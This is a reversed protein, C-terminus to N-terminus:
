LSCRALPRARKKARNVWRRLLREGFNTQASNLLDRVNMATGKTASPWRAGTRWYFRWRDLRVCRRRCCTDGLAGWVEGLGLATAAVNLAMARDLPRQATWMEEGLMARTAWAGDNKPEPFVLPNIMLWVGLIAGQRRSRNWVPVFVLPASFVRSCASWPNSHRAFIMRTHRKLFLVSRWGEITDRV